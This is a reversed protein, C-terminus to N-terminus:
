PMKGALKKLNGRLVKGEHVEQESKLVAVVAQEEALFRLAKRVVEAKNQAFGEKVLMDIFEELTPSLPISLTAM